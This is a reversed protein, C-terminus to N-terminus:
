LNNQLWEYLLPYVETPANKGLAYGLHGYDASFGEAKSVVIFTKQAGGMSDHYAMVRDAPVIHDKRGAIFLSPLTIKQLNKRYDKRNDMSTFSQGTLTRALQNLEKRTMPSVIEQLLQKRINPGINQPNWILNEIGFPTKPIYSILKALWATNIGWFSIRAGTKALFWIPDPHGFDMPSAVIILGSLKQQGHISLYVAMAMGSLSHGIFGVPQNRTRHIHDIAASLDYEGYTDITWGQRKQRQSTTNALGHGRFDLNWVDYGQRHLYRSVSLTENLDWFRHNSSIGHALLIPPGQNARRHICIEQADATKLPIYGDGQCTAGYAVSLLFIMRIREPKTAVM